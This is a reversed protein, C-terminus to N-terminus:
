TPLIGSSQHLVTAWIFHAGFFCCSYPYFFSLVPLGASAAWAMLFYWGTGQRTWSLPVFIRTSSVRGQAPVCMHLCPASGVSSAAQPLWGPLACPRSVSHRIRSWTRMCPLYGKRRNICPSTHFAAPYQFSPYNPCSTSTGEWWTGVFGYLPPYQSCPYVLLYCEMASSM